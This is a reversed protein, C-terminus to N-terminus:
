PKLTILVAYRVGLMRGRDDFIGEITTTDAASFEPTQKLAVLQRAAAIFDRSVAEIRLGREQDFNLSTYVTAADASRELAILVDAVPRERGIFDSVASSRRSLRESPAGPARSSALTQQLAAITADKEAVQRERGRLGAFVAARAVLVVLLAIGATKWLPTPERAPAHQRRGDLFSVPPPVPPVKTGPAVVTEM